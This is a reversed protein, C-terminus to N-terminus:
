QEEQIGYLVPLHVTHAFRLIKLKFGLPIYLLWQAEFPLCYLEGLVGGTLPYLPVIESNCRGNLPGFTPRSLV